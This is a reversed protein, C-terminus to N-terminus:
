RLTSISCNFSFGLVTVKAQQELWPDEEDKMTLRYSVVVVLGATGLVLHFSALLIVIVTALLELIALLELLVM